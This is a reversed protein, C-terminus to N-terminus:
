TPASHGTAKALESRRHPFREALRKAAWNGHEDLLADGTPMVDLLVDVAGEDECNGLAVLANRRIAEPGRWDAATPRFWDEFQQETMRVMKLLDPFAGPEPLPEFEPTLGSQAKVNHPCVTQCIDCGFLWDDMAERHELPIEDFKQNLYGLCNVSDLEWETMCQTPCAELCLTCSGCISYDAPQDPPIVLETALVGLFVWSGLRPVILNTNKGLRGLGAKQAFARELPPGTDVFCRSEVGYTLKLHEAVDQLRQLMLDHYDLGRCYRSLRGRAGEPKNPEPQEYSLAVAIVSRATPLWATPDTRPPLDTPEFPGAGREQLYDREEPLDECDTFGVQHFGAELIYRRLSEKQDPTM